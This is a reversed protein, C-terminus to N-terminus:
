LYISFFLLSISLLPWAIFLLVIAVEIALLFSLLLIDLLIIWSKVFMGM